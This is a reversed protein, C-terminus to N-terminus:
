QKRDWGNDSRRIVVDVGLNGAERRVWQPMLERVFFVEKNTHVFMQRYVLRDLVLNLM